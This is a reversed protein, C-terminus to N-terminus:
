GIGLRRADEPRAPGVYEFGATLRNSARRMEADRRGVSPPRLMKWLPSKARRRIMAPHGTTSRYRRGTARMVGAVFDSLAHGIGVGQFDPLCVTRHERWYSVLGPAHIVSAFAAPRGDLLAVFCKASNNLTGDLYHHRKFVRWASRRARIIELSIAPRGQLSRRALSGSPMELVWDPDLWEEVDYHCTVAVFRKGPTRRVAKAVASSGIQAVTRDVVSTFEDVVIVPRPDVLSRALTARFQEGNSLCAFPRLWSPPSSFGVSSLAATIDRISLGPPFGDVIARNAPWDYGGVLAEAFAERAVTSKGSGSPGVILGVQWNEDAGPLDVKWAQESRRAPLVDFLGELQIVRPTREVAVSKLFHAVPM